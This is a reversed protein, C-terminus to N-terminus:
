ARKARKFIRPQPGGGNTYRLALGEPLREGRKLAERAETIYKFEDGSEDTQVPASEHQDAVTQEVEPEQNESNRVM